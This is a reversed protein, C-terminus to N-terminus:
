GPAYGNETAPPMALERRRANYAALARDLEVGRAEHSKYLWRIAEVDRDEGSSQAISLSTARYAARKDDRCREVSEWLVRLEERVEPALDAWASSM